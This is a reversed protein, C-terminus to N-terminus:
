VSAISVTRFRGHDWERITSEVEGYIKGSLEICDAAFNIRM